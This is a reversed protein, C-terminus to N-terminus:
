KKKNDAKVFTEILCGDTKFVSTGTSNSKLILESQSLEIEDIEKFIFKLEGQGHFSNKNLHIKDKVFNYSSWLCLGKDKHFIVFSNELLFIQNATASFNLQLNEFLENAKRKTESCNLSCPFHSFLGSGFYRTFPNPFNLNHLQGTFQFSNTITTIPDIDENDKQWNLYSEICCKPYDLLLGLNFDDENADFQKAAECIEKDSHLYVFRMANSDNDSCDAISSSWDDMGKDVVIKFCKDSITFSLNLKDTWDSIRPINIFLIEFRILRGLAICDYLERFKNLSLIESLSSLIEFKSNTLNRIM